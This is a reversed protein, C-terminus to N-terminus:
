KGRSDSCDHEFITGREFFFEFSDTQEILVGTENMTGMLAPVVPRKVRNIRWRSLFQLLLNINESM